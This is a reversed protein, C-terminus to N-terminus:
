PSAAVVKKKILLDIAAHAADLALQRWEEDALNECTSTVTGRVLGLGSPGPKSLVEWEWGDKARIAYEVRRYKPM